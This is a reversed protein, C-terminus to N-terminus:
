EGRGKAAFRWGIYIPFGVTFKKARIAAQRRRWARYQRWRLPRARFGAQELEAHRQCYNKTVLPESCVRCRGRSRQRLQWRRSASMLRGTKTLAHEFQDQIRM